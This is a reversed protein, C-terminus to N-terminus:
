TALKLDARVEDMLRHLADFEFPKLLLRGNPGLHSLRDGMECGTPFIVWTEAAPALARRALDVGSMKPLSIDTLVLDFGGKRFEAEADEGNTCTVLDLGEEELM